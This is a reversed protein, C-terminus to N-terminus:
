PRDHLGPVKLFWRRQPKTFRKFHGWRHQLEIRVIPSIAWCIGWDNLLNAMLRILRGSWTWTGIASRDDRPAACRELYMSCSTDFLIFQALFFTCSAIFLFCRTGLHCSSQFVPFNFNTVNASIKRNLNAKHIKIVSRKCIVLQM